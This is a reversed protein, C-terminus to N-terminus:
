LLKLHPPSSRALTTQPRRGATERRESSGRKDGASESGVALSFQMICRRRERGSGLRM